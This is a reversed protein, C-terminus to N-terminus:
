LYVPFRHTGDGFVALGDGLQLMALIHYELNKAPLIAVPDQCEIQRAFNRGVILLLSKAIASVCAFALAFQSGGPGSAARLPPAPHRRLKRALASRPVSSFWPKWAPRSKAGNWTLWFILCAPAPVFLGWGRGCRRSGALARSLRNKRQFAWRSIPHKWSQLSSFIEPLARGSGTPSARHSFGEAIPGRNRFRPFQGAWEGPSSLREASFLM